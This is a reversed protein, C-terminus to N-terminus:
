KGGEEGDTEGDTEGGWGRSSMAGSLPYGGGGSPSGPEM